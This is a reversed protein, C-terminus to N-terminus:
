SVIIGQKKEDKMYKNNAKAYHCIADCMGGRIGKEVILLMDINTLLELEAVRKKIAAPVSFFERVSFFNAPDLVYIKICIKRFNELVDALLLVDRRLDLDHYEGLSKIEFDKCVRKGHKYDVETIDEMSLNCYFKEPLTTENFKEWDDMYEYPYVVKRLQLIFKNIENNSFKFMNIFKNKLEENLKKSYEKNCSLCNYKIFNDKVSEYKFFCDCDKCNIEHIGETLNDALKSLSTRMFKM